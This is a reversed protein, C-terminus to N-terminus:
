EDWVIRDVKPLVKSILEEDHVLCESSAYPVGGAKALIHYRNTEIKQCLNGRIDVFFQDVGVDKLTPNCKKGQMAHIFKIM